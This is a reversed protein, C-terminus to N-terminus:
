LIVSLTIKVFPYLERKRKQLQVKVKKTVKRKLHYMVLAAQIVLAALVVLLPCGQGVPKGQSQVM